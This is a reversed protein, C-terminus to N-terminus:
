ATAKELAIKHGAPVSTAAERSKGVHFTDGADLADVAVAVNDGPHVHVVRRYGSAVRAPPKEFGITM